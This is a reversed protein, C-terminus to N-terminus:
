KSQITAYCCLVMELDIYVARKTVPELSKFHVPTLEGNWRELPGAVHIEGKV